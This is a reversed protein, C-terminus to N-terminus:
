SKNILGKPFYLCEASTLDHRHVVNTDEAWAEPAGAQLQPRADSALSFM